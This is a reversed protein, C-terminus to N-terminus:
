QLTKVAHVAHAAVEWCLCIQTFPKPAKDICLAYKTKNQNYKWCHIKTCTHAMTFTHVICQHSLHSSMGSCNTTGPCWLHKKRLSAGIVSVNWGPEMQAAMCYILVVNGSQWENSYVCLRLLLLLSLYLSLFPCLSSLEASRCVIGWFSLYNSFRIAKKLYQKM